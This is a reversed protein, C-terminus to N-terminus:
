FFRASLQHRGRTRGGRSGQWDCPNVRVNSRLSIRDDVGTRPEAAPRIRGPERQAPPEAETTVASSRDATGSENIFVVVLVAGVGALSFAVAPKTAFQM